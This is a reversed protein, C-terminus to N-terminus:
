RHMGEKEILTKDLQLSPMMNYNLHDMIWISGVVILLVIGFTSILMILNWRPKAERGLHLFFILQVLLQMLAFILIIAVLVNKNFLHNIM